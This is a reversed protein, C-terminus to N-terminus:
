REDRMERGEDRAGRGEDRTQDGVASPQDSGSVPPMISDLMKQLQENITMRGEEDTVLGWNKEVMRELIEVAKLKDKVPTDKYALIALVQAPLVRRIKDPLDWGKRIGTRIEALDSPELLRQPRNEDASDDTKTM